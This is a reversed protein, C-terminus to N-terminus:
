RNRSLPQRFTGVVYVCAMIDDVLLGGINCRVIRNELALLLLRISTAPNFQAFYPQLTYRYDPHYILVCALFGGLRLPRVRTLTLITSIQARLHM